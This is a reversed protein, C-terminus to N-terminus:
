QNGMLMPLLLLTKETELILLKTVRIQLATKILNLGQCIFFAQSLAILFIILVSLSQPQDVTKKAKRALPIEKLTSSILMAMKLPIKIIM